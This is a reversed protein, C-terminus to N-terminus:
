SEPDVKLYPLTRQLCTSRTELPTEPRRRKNAQQTQTVQSEIIADHVMELNSIAQNVFHKVGPKTHKIPSIRGIIMPMCGYNLEFTAFGTSSSLNSNITVQHLPGNSRMAHILGMKKHNIIEIFM